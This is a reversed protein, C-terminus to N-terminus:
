PSLYELFINLNAVLRSREWVIAYDHTELAVPVRVFSYHLCLSQPLPVDFANM